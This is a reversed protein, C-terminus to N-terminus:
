GNDIEWIYHKTFLGHGIIVKEACELEKPVPKEIGNYDFACIEDDYNDVVLFVCGKCFEHAYRDSVDVKKLKLTKNM